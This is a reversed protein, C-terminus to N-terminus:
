KCQISQDSVYRSSNNGAYARVTYYYTTGSKATEDTYTFDSVEALQVWSDAASTKRYVRYTEAGTVKEWAITVGNTGNTM